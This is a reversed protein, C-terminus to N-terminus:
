GVLKDGLEFLERVFVVREELKEGSVPEVGFYRKRSLLFHVSWLERIQAYPILAKKEQISLPRVSEYADCVDEFFLRAEDITAGSVSLLSWLLTSLDYLLPAFSCFDFDFFRVLESAFRINKLHLDGHVFGSPLEGVEQLLTSIREVEDDLLDKTPSLANLQSHLLPIHKQQFDGFALSQAAQPHSLSESAIHFSALARGLARRQSVNPWQVADGTAREYLVGVRTGEPYSLALLLEKDKTLFPLAIAIGQHSLQQAIYFRLALQEASDETHYVKLFYEFGEGFLRYCDQTGRSFLECSLGSPLDFHRLTQALIEQEDAISAQVKM